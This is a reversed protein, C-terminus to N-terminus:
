GSVLLNYRRFNFLTLMRQNCLKFIGSAAAEENNLKRRQEGRETEAWSCFAITGISHVNSSYYFCPIFFAQTYERVTVHHFISAAVMKMTFDLSEIYFKTALAGTLIIIRRFSISIYVTDRSSHALFWWFVINEDVFITHCNFQM